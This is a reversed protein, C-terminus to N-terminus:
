GSGGHVHPEMRQLSLAPTQIRAVQVEEIYARGFLTSECERSCFGAARGLQVYHIRVVRRRAPEGVEVRVDRGEIEAALLGNAPATRVVEVHVADQGVWRPVDGAPGVREYQHNM